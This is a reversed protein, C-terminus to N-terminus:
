EQHYPHNTRIQQARYLQEAILVRVLMHPWTMTGFSLVLNARERVIPLLGQHGGIVIAISSIAQNCCKDIQQAFAPSDIHKGREDLAIVYEFPEIAAMIKDTELMQRKKLDAHEAQIEHLQLAPRLRQSYTKFLEQTPGSKMKGPAILHFKM